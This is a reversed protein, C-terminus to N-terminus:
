KNSIPKKDFLKQNKIKKALWLGMAATSFLSFMAYIAAPVAVQPFATFSRGAALMLAMATNQLGVEIAITMATRPGLKLWGGYYWSGWFSGVNLLILWPIVQLYDLVPPVAVEGKELFAAGIMSIGLPVPMIYKLPKRIKEAFGPFQNRTTIGLFVPLLTVMFIEYVASWFSLSVEAGRGMFFLVGGSLLLPISFQTLFANVTTLSVCLALNGNLLYNLLNSTAGGPCVAVLFIGVKLPASVPAVWAILFAFLPLLLMQAVLGLIVERPRLVIRRFDMITLSLGMGYMILAISLPLFLESFLKTSIM